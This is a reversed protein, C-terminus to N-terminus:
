QNGSINGLSYEEKRKKQKNMKRRYLFIGIFIGVLIMVFLVAGVSGFIIELLFKESVQKQTELSEPPSPIELAIETTSQFFIKGSLENVLIIEDGADSIEFDVFSNQINSSSFNLSSFELSINSEL